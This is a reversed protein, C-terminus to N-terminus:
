SKDALAVTHELFKHERTFKIGYSIIGQAGDVEYKRLVAVLEMGIKLEDLVMDALQAILRPGEVLQVLGICYPAMKKFNDPPLDIQTFTKLVAKGSFCFPEFTKNGCTCIYRKPYHKAGCSSCVVGELLFRQRNKRWVSIPSTM